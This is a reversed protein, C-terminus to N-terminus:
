RGLSPDEDALRIELGESGARVLQRAAWSKGARLSNAILVFEQGEPLGEFTFPAGPTLTQTREPPRLVGRPDRLTVVITGRAVGDAFTATGRCSAGRDVEVAVGAIPVDELSVRLNLYRPDEVRLEGPGRCPGFRADGTADTRAVVAAAPMDEPVYRCVLDAVPLQQPSRARVTLPVGASAALGRLQAQDRWPAAAPAFAGTVLLWSDGG